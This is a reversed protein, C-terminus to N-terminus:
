QYYIVFLRHTCIMTVIAPNAKCHLLWPILYSTEVLLLSYVPHPCVRDCRSRGLNVTTLDQSLSLPRYHVMGLGCSSALPCIWFACYDEGIGLLCSVKCHRIIWKQFRYHHFNLFNKEEFEQEKFKELHCLFKM